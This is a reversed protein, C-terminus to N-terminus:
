VHENFPNTSQLKYMLNPYLSVHFELRNPNLNSTPHNVYTFPKPKVSDNSISDTDNRMLPELM